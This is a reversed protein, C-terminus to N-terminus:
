ELKRGGIIEFLTKNRLDHIEANYTHGKRIPFDNM